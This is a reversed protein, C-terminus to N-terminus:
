EVRNSEARKSIKLLKRDKDIHVDINGFKRELETVFDEMVRVQMGMLISAHGGPRLKKIVTDIYKETEPSIDYLKKNTGYHAEGYTDLILDFEEFDSLERISRWRLDNKRHLDPNQEKATKKSLGTTYVKVKDPFKERIQKAYLGAGGGVDLIRLKRDPSDKKELLSPIVEEIFSVGHLDEIGGDMGNETRDAIYLYGKRGERENGEVGRKWEKVKSKYEGSNLFNEQNMNQLM